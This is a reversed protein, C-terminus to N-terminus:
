NLLPFRYLTWVTNLLMIDKLKLKNVLKPYFKYRIIRNILDDKNGSVALGIDRLWIEAEEKSFKKIRVIEALDMNSKKHKNVSFSLSLDVM